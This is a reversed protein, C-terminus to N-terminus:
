WIDEPFARGPCVRSEGFGMALPRGGSWSQLEPRHDCSRAILGGRGEGGRGQHAQRVSWLAAVGGSIVWLDLRWRLYLAIALNGASRAEPGESGPRM